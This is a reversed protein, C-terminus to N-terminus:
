ALDELFKRLSRGFQAKQWHRVEPADMEVTITSPSRALRELSRASWVLAPDIQLIDAETKRWIKLAKLKTIQAYTQSSGRSVPPRSIPGAKLGEQISQMIRRGITRRANSTLPTV